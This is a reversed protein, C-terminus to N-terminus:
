SAFCLSGCYFWWFWDFLVVVLQLCLDFGLLLLVLRFLSDCFCLYGFVDCFWFWCVSGLSVFWLCVFLLFCVRFGLRFAIVLFRFLWAGCLSWLVLGIFLTLLSHWVQVLCWVIIILLCILRLSLLTFGFVWVLKFLCTYLSILFLWLLLLGGYVVCYFWVGVCLLWDDFALLVGFWLVFLWYFSEFWVVYVGVVFDFCIMLVVVPTIWVVLFYGFRIWCDELRTSLEYNFCGVCAVFGGFLVLLVIFLYFWICYLACVMVCFWLEFM